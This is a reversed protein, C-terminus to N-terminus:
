HYNKRQEYGIQLRTKYVLIHITQPIMKQIKIKGCNIQANINKEM